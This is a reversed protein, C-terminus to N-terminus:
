RRSNVQMIMLESYRTWGGGGAVILINGTQSSLTSLLGSVKAIHTAGGGTGAGYNAQGGGNYGGNTFTANASSTPPEPPPIVPTM